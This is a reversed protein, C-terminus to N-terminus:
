RSSLSSAVSPTRGGNRDFGPELRHMSAVPLAPYAMQSSVMYGQGWVTEIFGSVGAENLKRRLRCVLVDITQADPEDIGGYIHRMLSEKTLPMGKGLALAELVTFETPTVHIPKGDVSVERNGQHLTVPGVCLPSNWIIRKRRVVAEIRAILESPEFPKTLYDDAGLKLGTVKDPARTIGSLILVPTDHGAIRMKKVVEFGDIGPLMLDLIVIDYRSHDILTLVAEGTEAHDVSYGHSCLIQKALKALAPDDDVVLVRM